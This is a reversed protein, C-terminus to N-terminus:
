KSAPRNERSAPRVDHKLDRCTTADYYFKPAGLIGCSYCYGSTAARRMAAGEHQAHMAPTGDCTDCDEPRVRHTM